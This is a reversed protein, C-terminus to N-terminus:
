AAKSLIISEPEAKFASRVLGYVKDVGYRLRSDGVFGCEDAGIIVEGPYTDMYGAGNIFDHLGIHVKGKSSLRMPSYPDHEFLSKVNIFCHFCPVAYSYANEISVIAQLPTMLSPKTQDKVVKFNIAACREALRRGEEGREDIATGIFNVSSVNVFKLYRELWEGPQIDEIYNSHWKTSRLGHTDLLTDLSAGNWGPFWIFEAYLNSPILDFANPRHLDIYDQCLNENNPNAGVEIAAQRFDSEWDCLEVIGECLADRFVKASFQESVQEGKTRCWLEVLQNGWEDSYNSDHCYICYEPLDAATIASKKKKLQKM